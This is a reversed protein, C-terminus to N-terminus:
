EESADRFACRACFYGSPPCSNFTGPEDLDAWMGDRGDLIGLVSEGSKRESPSCSDSEKEGVRDDSLTDGMVAQGDDGTGGKCLLDM